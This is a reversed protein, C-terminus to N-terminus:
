RRELEMQRRLRAMMRRVDQIPRPGTLVSTPKRTRTKPKDPLSAVVEALSEPLTEGTACFGQRTMGSTRLASEFSERDADMVHWLCGLLKQREHTHLQSVGAGSLVPLGDPLPAGLRSLFDGLSETRSRNMRRLMSVFFGALEFWNPATVTGGQFRGYGRVAVADAMRQLALAGMGCVSSTADRLDAKCTACIAVHPDEASLRHPELPVGCAHCRDLLSGGHKECGTHWAFRWQLRYYPKPDEALCYQCYQLGGHRKTNRAGLALMWPWIAKEPPSSGIIRSAVPHLTAAMLAEMPIGSLASLTKIRKDDHVRDADITWVRWKPWVDGTLVLPDCGQTIAARVLWSSLIEDPLLPVPVAWRSMVRGTGPHWSHAAGM